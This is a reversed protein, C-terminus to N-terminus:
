DGKISLRNVVRFHNHRIAFVCGLDFVPKLRTAHSVISAVGQM